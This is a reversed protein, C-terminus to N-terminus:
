SNAAKLSAMSKSLDKSKFSATNKNQIEYLTSSPTVQTWFDFYSHEMYRQNRKFETLYDQIMGRNTPGFMSKFKGKGRQWIAKVHNTTVETNPDIFNYRHNVVDPQFSQAAIGNYAGWM